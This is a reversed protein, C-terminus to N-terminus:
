GGTEDKGGDRFSKARGQVREDIQEHEDRKSTRRNVYIGKNYQRKRGSAVKCKTKVEM